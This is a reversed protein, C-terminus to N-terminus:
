EITVSGVCIQTGTTVTVAKEGGEFGTLISPIVILASIQAPQVRLPVIFKIDEISITSTRDWSSGEGTIIIRRPKPLLGARLPLLSDVAAILCGSFKQSITFTAECNLPPDAINEPDSITIKCESDPATGSITINLTATVSTEGINITSSNVTIYQACSDDVDIVLKKLDEEPLSIVDTRTFTIAVDITKNAGSVEVSNPEITICNTTACSTHCALCSPPNGHPTAILPCAEGGSHCGACKASLVNKGAVGGEHCNACSGTSFGHSPIGHLQSASHCGEALCGQNVNNWALGTQAGILIMAACLVVGAIFVKKM